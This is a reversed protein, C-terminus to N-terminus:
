NIKLLKLYSNVMKQIDFKKNIDSFNGYINKEQKLISNLISNLGGVDGESFLFGNENEKVLGLINGQNKTTIVPVNSLLSEVVSYCFTEGHSPHILFDYKCYLEHLNSVSGKFNIKDQLLYKNVKNQLEDRYYGKGYIDIKFIFEQFDKIAEILDQIGKEKRLHSVVIFRNSNSFDTKKKYKEVNLGNLIVTTKQFIHNGFDKIISKRSNESVCVFVDIYKSYIIGKIKKNIKKKLSYGMLPRPNHDVTIVQTNQSRKIKAYFPTCLELFHTLVSNYKVDNNKIYNLFKNEINEGCCSIINMESYVGYGIANPFFWDVQVGKEKCSKDFSWFFYDMGGIRDEFLEYNCIVAIHGKM